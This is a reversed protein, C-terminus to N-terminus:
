GGEISHFTPETGIGVTITEQEPVVTADIALDSSPRPEEVLPVQEKAEKEVAVVEVEVLPFTLPRGAQADEYGMRYAEEQFRFVQDQYEGQVRSVLANCSAVHELKKERLSVKLADRKWVLGVVNDKEFFTEEKDLSYGPSYERSKSPIGFLGPELIDITPGEVVQRSSDLLSSCDRDKIAFAHSLKAESYECPLPRVNAKDRVRGERSCPVSSSEKGGLNIIVDELFTDQYKTIFAALDGDDKIWPLPLDFHSPDRSSVGTGSAFVNIPRIEGSANGGKENSPLSEGSM